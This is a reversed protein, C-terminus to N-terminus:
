SVAFATAGLMAVPARLGRTATSRLLTSLMTPARMESFTAAVTALPMTLWPSMMRGTTTAPRTPAIAHFTVVHYKAIGELELWASM